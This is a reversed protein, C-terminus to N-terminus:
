GFLFKYEDIDGVKTVFNMELLDDKLRELAAFREDLSFKANVWVNADDLNLLCPMRDHLFKMEKNAPKTIITCSNILEGTNKDIWTDWLGAMLTFRMGKMRILYAQKKKVKEDLKKWEYFGDTIVM